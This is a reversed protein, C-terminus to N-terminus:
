RQIMELPIRLLLKKIADMRVVNDKFLKLGLEFVRMKKHTM